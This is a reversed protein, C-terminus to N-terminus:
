LILISSVMNNCQESQSGELIIPSTQIESLSNSPQYTINETGHSPTIAFDERSKSQTIHPDTLVSAGQFQM